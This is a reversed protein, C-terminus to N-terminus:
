KSTEMAYFKDAMEHLKNCEEYSICEQEFYDRDIRIHVVTYVDKIDFHRRSIDDILVNLYRVMQLFTM